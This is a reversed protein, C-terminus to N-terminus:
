TDSAATENLPILDPRDGQLLIPVIQQFEWPSTDDPLSLQFIVNFRDGPWKGPINQLTPSIAKVIDIILEHQWCILAVGPVAAAKAAVTEVDRKKISTDVNIGLKGALPTITQLPRRSKGKEGDAAEDDGHDPNAAFLAVPTPLVSQQAPGPVFLEAWAGARQWGRPTLSEPDPAGSDNVGSDGNQVPKEAHRLILITHSAM